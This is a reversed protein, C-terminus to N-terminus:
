NLCRSVLDCGNAPRNQRMAKAGTNRCCGGDSRREVAAFGYGQKKILTALNKRLEEAESFNRRFPFFEMVGEDSNLRHFMGADRDSWNRLLLRDTELLVSSM